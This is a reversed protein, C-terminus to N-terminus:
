DVLRFSPRRARQISGRFNGLLPPILISSSLSSTRRLFLVLTPSPSYVEIRTCRTWAWARQSAFHSQDGFRAGVPRHFHRFSASRARSLGSDSHMLPTCRQLSTFHHKLPEIGLPAASLSFTPTGASPVHATTLHLPAYQDSCLYRQLLLQNILEYVPHGHGHGHGNEM